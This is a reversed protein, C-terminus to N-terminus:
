EEYVCCQMEIDLKKKNTTTKKRDKDITTEWCPKFIRTVGKRHEQCVAGKKHICKRVESGAIRGPSDRAVDELSGSEPRAEQDDSPPIGEEVMLERVMLPTPPNMTVRCSQHPELLTYKADPIRATNFLSSQNTIFSTQHQAATGSPPEAQCCACDTMEDDKM